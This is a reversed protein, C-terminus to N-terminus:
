VYTNYDNELSHLKIKLLFVLNLLTSIQRRIKYRKLIHINKRSQNITSKEIQLCVVIKRDNKEM